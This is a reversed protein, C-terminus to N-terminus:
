KRENLSQDETGIRGRVADYLRDRRSGVAESEEDDDARLDELNALCYPCGVTELHFRAYDKFNPELSGMLYAGLQDRTLCTLGQERWISGLSHESPGTERRVEELKARLEASDRLAKEIRASETEEIVETLYAYLQERTVEAM